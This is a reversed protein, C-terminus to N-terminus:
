LKSSSLIPPPFLYLSCGKLSICIYLKWGRVWKHCATQIIVSIRWDGTWKRGKLSL